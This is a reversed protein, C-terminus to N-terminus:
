LVNTLMTYKTLCHRVELSRAHTRAKAMAYLDTDLKMKFSVAESPHKFDTGSWYEIFGPLSFSLPLLLLLLPSMIETPLANFCLTVTYTCAAALTSISRRGVKPTVVLSPTLQLM